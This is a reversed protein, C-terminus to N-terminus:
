FRFRALIARPTYHLPPGAALRRIRARYDAIEWHAPDYFSWSGGWTLVLHDVKKLDRNVLDVARLGLVHLMSWEQKTLTWHYVGHVIDVAEGSNHASRPYPTRSHGDAVARAQEAETRFASHVYLPIGRKRALEVFLAAWRMLRPDVFQWDARDWQKMHQDSLLFHPARLRQPAQWGEDSPLDNLFRDSALATDPREARSAAVIAQPTRLRGAILDQYWQTLVQGPKM